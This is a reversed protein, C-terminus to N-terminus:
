RESDMFDGSLVAGPPSIVFVTPSVREYDGKISYVAGLTFNIIRNADKSGEVRDINLLVIMGSLLADVIERSVNADEPRFSRVEIGKSSRRIRDSVPRNAPRHAPEEPVAEIRKKELLAAEEDISDDLYDNEVEDEGDIRLKNLFSDMLGM